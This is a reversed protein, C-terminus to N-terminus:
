RVPNPRGDEEKLTLLNYQKEEGSCVPDPWLDRTLLDRECPQAKPSRSRPVVLMQMFRDCSRLSIPESSDLIKKRGAPSLRMFVPWAEAEVLRGAEIMRRAMPDRAIDRMGTVWDISKGLALAIVSDSMGADVLRCITIAMEDLAPSSRHLNESAWIALDILVASETEGYEMAQITKWGIQKAAQLRLHGFILIWGNGHRRVGIPQLQGVTALSAKMWEIADPDMIRRPRDHTLRIKQVPVVLFEPNRIEEMQGTKM